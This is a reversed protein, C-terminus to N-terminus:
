PQGHEAGLAEHNVHAILHDVIKAAVEIEGAYQKFFYEPVSSCGALKAALEYQGHVLTNRLDKIKRIGEHPDDWPIDTIKRSVIRELLNPLTETDRADGLLMRALHELMLLVVAGEALLLGKSDAQSQQLALNHERLLRHERAIRTLPELHEEWDM